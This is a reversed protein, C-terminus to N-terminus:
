SSSSSSLTSRSRSAAVMFSIPTLAASDLSDGPRKDGVTGPRPVCLDFLVCLMTAAAEDFSWARGALGELHDDKKPRDVLASGALRSGAAGVTAEGTSNGGKPSRASVILSACAWLLFSSRSDRFFLLCRVSAGFLAILTM